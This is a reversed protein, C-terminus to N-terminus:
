SATFEPAPPLQRFGSVVGAGRAVSGPTEAQALARRIASFHVLQCYCFITQM